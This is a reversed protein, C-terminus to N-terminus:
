PDLDMNSTRDCIDRHERGDVGDDLLHQGVMLLAKFMDLDDPLVM